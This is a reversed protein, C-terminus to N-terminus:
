FCPLKNIDISAKVKESMIKNELYPPVGDGHKIAEKVIENIKDEPKDFVIKGYKRQIKTQSFYILDKYIYNEVSYCKMSVKNSNHGYIEDLKEVAGKEKKLVDFSNEKTLRQIRDIVEYTEKDFVPKLFDNEFNNKTYIIGSFMMGLPTFGDDNKQSGLTKLEEDSLMQLFKNMKSINEGQFQLIDHGDYYKNAFDKNIASVELKHSFLHHLLNNGNTDRGKILFSKNKILFEESLMGAIAFAISSTKNVDIDPFVKEVFTGDNNDILCVARKNHTKHLFSIANLLISNGNKDLLQQGDLSNITDKLQSFANRLSQITEQRSKASLRVRNYYEFNVRYACYLAATLLSHGNESIQEANSSYSQACALSVLEEFQKATGAKSFVSGSKNRVFNIVGEAFTDLHGHKILELIARISKGYGMFGVYEEYKDKDERPNAMTMAHIYRKNNIDIENDYEVDFIGMKTDLGAKKLKDLIEVFATVDKIRKFDFSIDEKAEALNKLFSNLKYKKVQEFVSKSPDLGAFPRISTFIEKNDDYRKFKAVVGDKEFEVFGTNYRSHIETFETVKIINNGIEYNGPPLISTYAFTKANDQESAKKILKEIFNEKDKFDVNLEKVTNDADIFSTRVVGDSLAKEVKEKHLEDLMKLVTIYSDVDVYNPIGDMVHQAFFNIRFDDIDNPVNPATHIGVFSQVLYDYFGPMNQAYFKFKESYENEKLIGDTRQQSDLRILMSALKQHLGRMNQIIDKDNNFPSQLFSVVTNVANSYGEAGIDGKALLEFHRKYSELDSKSLMRLTRITDMDGRQAIDVYAKIGDVLAMDLETINKGNIGGDSVVPLGRLTFPIFAGLERYLTPSPHKKAEAQIDYLYLAIKAYNVALEQVEKSYKGDVRQADAVTKQYNAHSVDLEKAIDLFNDNNQSTETMHQESTDPMNNFDM